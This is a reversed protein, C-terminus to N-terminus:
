TQSASQVRLRYGIRTRTSVHGHQVSVIRQIVDGARVLLRHRQNLPPAM